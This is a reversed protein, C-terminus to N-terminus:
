ESQDADRAREAEKSAAVETIIQDLQEKLRPIREYTINEQEFKLVRNILTQIRPEFDAFLNQFNEKFM